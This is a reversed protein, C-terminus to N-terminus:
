TQMYIYSPNQMSSIIQLLNVIYLSVEQPRLPSSLEKISHSHHFLFAPFCIGAAFM